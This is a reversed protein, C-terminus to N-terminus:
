RVPDGTSAGRSLVQEVTSPYEKSTSDVGFSQSLVEVPDRKDRCDIQVEDVYWHRRELVSWLVSKLEDSDVGNPLVGLVSRGLMLDETVHNLFGRVTPMQILAESLPSM